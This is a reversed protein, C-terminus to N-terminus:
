IGAVYADRSFSFDHPPLCLYCMDDREVYTLVCEGISPVNVPIHPFIITQNKIKKAYELGFYFAYFYTPATLDYADLSEKLSGLFPCLRIEERIEPQKNDEPFRRDDIYHSAYTLGMNVVAARASFPFATGYIPFSARTNM